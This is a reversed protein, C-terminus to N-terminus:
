LMRDIYVDKNGYCPLMPPDGLGISVIQGTLGLSKLLAYGANEDFAVEDSDKTGIIVQSVFRTFGVGPFAKRFEDDFTENLVHNLIIRRLDGVTYTRNWRELCKGNEDIYPLDLFSTLFQYLVTDPRLNIQSLNSLFFGIPSPFDIELRYIRNVCVMKKIDSHFDYVLYDISISSLKLTTPYLLSELAAILLVDRETSPRAITIYGQKKSHYFHLLGCIVSSMVTKRHCFSEIEDMKVSSVLIPSLQYEGNCIDDLMQECEEVSIREFYDSKFRSHLESVIHMLEFMLAQYEAVKGYDRVQGYSLLKPHLLAKM